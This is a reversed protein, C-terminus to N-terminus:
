PTEATLIRAAWRDAVVRARDRAQADRAQAALEEAVWLAQDAAERDGVAAFAEAVRLVGTLSGQQRARFLAALYLRRAKAEAVKRGGAVEGIRLYADGVEVPGDWHRSWLAAGYAYHWAREAASVNKQALADEVRQLYATWPAEGTGSERPAGGEPQGCSALGLLVMTAAVGISPYRRSTRAIRHHRRMAGVIQQATTKM